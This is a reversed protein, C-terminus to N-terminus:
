HKEIFQFYTIWLCKGEIIVNKSDENSQGPIIPINVFINRDNATTLPSPLASDEVMRSSTGTKYGVNNGNFGQKHSEICSNLLRFKSEGSCGFMLYSKATSRLLSSKSTSSIPSGNDNALFTSVCDENMFSTSKMPKPDHEQKRHILSSHQHDQFSKLPSIAYKGVM